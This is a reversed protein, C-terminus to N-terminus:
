VYIDAKYGSYSICTAAYLHEDTWQSCFKSKQFNTVLFAQECINTTGFAALIKKMSTKITNVNKPPSGYGAICKGRHFCRELTM